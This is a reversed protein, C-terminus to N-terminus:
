RRGSRSRWSTTPRSIPTAWPPPWWTGTRCTKRSPAAASAIQLNLAPGGTFVFATNNYSAPQNGNPSAFNGNVYYPQAIVGSLSPVPSQLTILPTFVEPQTDFFEEASM